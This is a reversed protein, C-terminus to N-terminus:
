RLGLGRSHIDNGYRYNDAYRDANREARDYLDEATQSGLETNRDDNAIQAAQEETMIGAQGTLTAIYDSLTGANFTM